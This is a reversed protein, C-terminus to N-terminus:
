VMEGRDSHQVLGASAMLEQAQYLMPLERKTILRGLPYQLNNHYAEEAQAITLKLASLHFREVEDTTRHVPEFARVRVLYYHNRNHRHILNYYDSVTGIRTIIEGIVGLEESLERLLATEEDEGAEVGGGSTEILEAKGFEDDRNVQVFYLYGDDDFVVARVIERDHDIYELPWEDDNLELILEQPNETKM